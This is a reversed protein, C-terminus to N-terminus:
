TVWSDLLCSDSLAGCDVQTGHLFSFDGEAEPYRVRTTRDALRYHVREIFHPVSFYTLVFVSGTQKTCLEHINIDMILM